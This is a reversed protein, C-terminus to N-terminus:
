PISGLSGFRLPKLARKSVFDPVPDALSPLKDIAKQMLKMEEMLSITQKIGALRVKLANPAVTDALFREYPTQPPDYTKKLKSNVREKAILKLCPYFFNLLRDYHDFVSQLAALGKEGSFRAYGVIKRVSAGNKQEVFCNDNKKSSRSRTLAIAHHACWSLLAHNIFEGGNDPHLVRVPVPLRALASDLAQNVWRFAKNKLVFHATWCHKVETVTLTYCFEGSPNGGDHQVLDIQWLGDAQEECEFHSLTPIMAKLHAAAPRTGSTGKLRLAAKLPRLLRDITSGSIRRLKDRVIGSLAFHPEARITDINAHLFPAFLKGCQRNFAEWLPALADRVAEDYIKPYERKKGSGAAAKLRVRKGARKVLGENALLHIAYKRGYGTQAVFTDLIATKERLGGAVRPREAFLRPVDIKLLVFALFTGIIPTHAFHLLTFYGFFKLLNKKMHRMFLM